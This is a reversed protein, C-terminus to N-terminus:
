HVDCFLIQFIQFYFISCRNLNKMGIHRVKIKLFARYKEQEIGKSVLRQFFDNEIYFASQGGIGSFDTNEIIIRDMALDQVILIPENKFALDFFGINEDPV